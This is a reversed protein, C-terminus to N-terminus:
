ESATATARFKKQVGPCMYEEPIVPKAWNILVILSRYKGIVKDVEAKYKTNFKGKSKSAQTFIPCLNVKKVTMVTMRPDIIIRTTCGILM